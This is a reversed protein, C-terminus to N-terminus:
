DLELRVCSVLPRRMIGARTLINVCRVRGDRGPFINVVRGLPWLHRPLSKEVVLVVEGVKVQERVEHWKCRIQLQPIYERMWRGWFIEALHQVHRWRSRYVDSPSGVPPIPTDGKLLLLKNPTIPSLDNPDDSVRTLPRGNVIAEVECFLTALTEDTLRVSQLLTGKLARKVVGVMREWVGGMHPAAPPNFSWEIGKTCGYALLSEKSHRLFASRLEKEGAVFNTGNDSYVKTPTGRRAAFRRFANIFSQADLSFLIELHVARSSFCTFICGYRKVISRRQVVDYPGFADLGVVSFASLTATLREPPLNAMIQVAPKGFLRKCRVCSRIVKRIIGRPKTIWYKERILALTWEIGSHSLSHYHVVIVEALHHDHSIIIPHHGTRGGVRLLGDSGLFPSLSRIRSSKFVTAGSSLSTVEKAFRQRQVYLVVVRQANNLEVTTLHGVNGRNRFTDVFRCIWAVARYMSHWSSYHACVRDFLPSPNCVTACTVDARKGCLEPDSDSVTVSQAKQLWFAQPLLLWEPGHLWLDHRELSRNLPRTLLDAPNDATGVHRWQSCETSSRIASVRNAVFTRFRRKQNSIYGIVIMSDTWYYVPSVGLNLARIIVLALSAAKCAAQLELRPITQQKIPAVFAKAAILNCCIAGQSSVCRLYVCTGYASKSADCFVHLEFYGDVFETSLLRRPFSFQRSCEETQQVWARWEVAIDGSVEEDWGLGAKTAIQFLLRGQLLWATTLGLPDFFSAVTKLMLRRTLLEGNLRQTYVYFFADEQIRWRVGLAKGVSESSFEHVEKARRAEPIENLMYPVNVVFKTLVFGGTMLLEPLADLVLFAGAEDRVSILCDDVYMSNLVIHRLMPHAHPHDLVTRRLAYTSAAACWVGGFLHSSMRLHQLEGGRYWLFRLADRDALPVKVQHYMAKIDAQIAIEYSRFNILIELLNNILDPGQHCRQNLSQGRFSSACDFVVRLKEPKNPNVVYHHPIYWVREADRLAEPPVIEAYGETLLVEIEKDYRDMLLDDSGFRRVLSDLRRKAVFFNNPLPEDPCKWPIPLEYHNGVKKCEKDWLAIVVEDDTSTARDNGTDRELAWLSELDGRLDIDEPSSVNLAKVYNCIVGSMARAPATQGNLTWGFRYRVAFPEGPRGKRSDLPILIDAFDQGILLDVRSCNMNASLDLDELHPFDGTAISGCSVPISAVVKVGSMTVCDDGVVNSVRMSVFSSSSLVDGALTGLRYSCATEPLSLSDVLSRTCFTSTSCTDLAALVSGEGNILVRVIPMFTCSTQKAEFDAPNRGSIAANVVVRDVHLLTSHKGKCVFCRSDSPCSSAVHGTKLCNFCFRGSRAFSLREEVSLSKFDSCRWLFHAQGCKTCPPPVEDRRGGRGSRSNEPRSLTPADVLLATSDSTSTSEHPRGCASEHSMLASHQAVVGCLPDNMEDAICEVFDVLDVFRLYADAERKSKLQKRRWSHVAYSPLRSSIRSIIVQADVEGLADIDTLVDLANTLDYSLRRVQEASEAQTIVTLQAIIAQTVIHKSGFLHHLRDLARQYGKEGGAIQVGRIAERAPGETYSLLRAIKGDADCCSRDVNVKFANIFSHYSLPDGNFPVIEVKPLCLLSVLESNVVGTQKPDILASPNVKVDNVAIDGPLNTKLVQQSPLNGTAIDHSQGRPDAASPPRTDDLYKHALSIAIVYNDQVSAFWIDNFTAEMAVDSVSGLLRDFLDEIEDMLYKADDLCQLIPPRTREALLRRLKNLCRTLVGKRQALLTRLKGCVAAAADEKPTSRAAALSLVAPTAAAPDQLTADTSTASSKPSAPQETVPPPM